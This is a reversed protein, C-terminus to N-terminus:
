WYKKPLLHAKRLSVVRNSGLPARFTLFKQLDPPLIGDQDELDRATPPWRDAEITKIKDIISEYLKLAMKSIRDASSLEYTLRVPSSIDISSKYVLSSQYKGQSGLQVFSLNENLM